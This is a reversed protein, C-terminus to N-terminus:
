STGDEKRRRQQAEGIQEMMRIRTAAYYELLAIIGIVSAFLLVIVLKGLTSHVQTSLIAVLGLTFVIFYSVACAIQENMGLRVLRHAFHNRDGKWPPIGRFVRVVIVSLTDYLPVGFLLIPIFPTIVSYQTNQSRYTCILTLAAMLYGLFM